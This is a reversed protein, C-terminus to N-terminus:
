HGLVEFSVNGCSNAGAMVGCICRVTGRVKQCCDDWGGLLSRKLGVALSVPGTLVCVLVTVAVTAASFLSAAGASTISARAVPATVIV